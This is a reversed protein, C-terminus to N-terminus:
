LFQALLPSSKELPISNHFLKRGVRHREVEADLDVVVFSLAFDCGVTTARKLAGFKRDAKDEAIEM